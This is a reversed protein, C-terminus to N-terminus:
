STPRYSVNECDDEITDSRDANLVTDTGAGCSVYDPVPAIPPSGSVPTHHTDITDNGDQARFEDREDPRNECEFAFPDCFAESGRLSDNGLGATISDEGAGGFLYDAESGGSLTDAGRYGKMDDRGPGGILTDNGISRRHFQRDGLLDDNGPGGRLRDDGQEGAIIGADGDSGGGGDLLDDGFGSNMDDVGPGGDMFDAGENGEMSDDGALGRMDDSRETGSMFDRNDTGVCLNGSRNPCEISAALAVGSAFVMALMMSALLLVSKRMGM